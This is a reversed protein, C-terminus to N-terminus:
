IFLAVFVQVAFFSFDHDIGFTISLYIISKVISEGVLVPCQVVLAMHELICRFAAEWLQNISKKM